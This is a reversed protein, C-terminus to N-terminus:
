PWCLLGFVLPINLYLMWDFLKSNAKEERAVGELNSQDHPLMIELIPILVFAYTVTFYSWSGKFYLSVVASLPLTFAALYKLDKM